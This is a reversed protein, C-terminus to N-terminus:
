DIALCSNNTVPIQGWLHNQEFQYVTKYFHKVPKIVGKDKLSMNSIKHQLDCKWILITMIHYQQSVALGFNYACSQLGCIIDEINCMKVIDKYRPITKLSM